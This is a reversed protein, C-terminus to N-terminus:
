TLDEMVRIRSAETLSWELLWSKTDSRRAGLIQLRMVNNRREEASRTLGLALDVEREIESANAFHHMGINNPDDNREPRRLQVAILCPIEKGPRSIETSLGKMVDGHHEKLDRTQKSAEMHSLQDILIFDAGAYRARNVIASVTRDGIESSEVLIGGAEAIQDQGDRLANSEEMSLRSHVLRNYSVGSYLADVRDEIEAINMELTFIIPLFGAKRLGVATNALYFTKGTKAYAGVAALEGPMLGGTHEDLEAIGLPLGIGQPRAERQGYRRRRADVNDAMNSRNQRPAVAESAAYAVTHLKKLTGVPDAVSTGAADRLMDQLQNTVYRRQLREALWTLSEDSDQEFRFGPFEETIVYQTPAKDMQNTVWYQVTFDYVARCLPEEFAEPRLGMDWVEAISKAETLHTLLKREVESM